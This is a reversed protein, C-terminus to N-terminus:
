TGKVGGIKLDTDKVKQISLQETISVLKIIMKTM